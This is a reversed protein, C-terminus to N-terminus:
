IDSIHFIDTHSFRIQFNKCVAVVSDIWLVFKAISKSISRHTWAVVMTNCRISHAYLPDSVPPKTLTGDIFKKENKSILDIQMSHAWTHYNKDDLVLVPSVLILTPNENPHLYYPNM